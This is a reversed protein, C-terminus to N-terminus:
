SDSFKLPSALAGLKGLDDRGPPAPTVPVVQPGGPEVPKGPASRPLPALPPAAVGNTGGYLAKFGELVIARGREQRREKPWAMWADLVAAEEPVTPSLSIWLRDRHKTKPGSAM